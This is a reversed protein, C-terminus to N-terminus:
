WSFAIGAMYGIMVPKSLLDALFGLQGAWGVICLVGVVLALAAALAAQTEADGAAISGVTAATM